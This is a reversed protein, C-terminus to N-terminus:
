EKFTVYASSKKVNMQFSEIEGYKMFLIKVMEKNFKIPIKDVYYRINRSLGSVIKASIWLADM